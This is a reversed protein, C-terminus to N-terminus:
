KNRRRRLLIFAVGIAVILTILEFGPTGSEVTISLTGTKYIESDEYTATVTYTGKKNPATLTAKGNDDTTVTKGEFTVNAGALAAGKALVTVTFKEGTKPNSAPGSIKIKYVNIVTVTASTSPYGDKEVTITYQQSEIGPDGAKFSVVGDETQKTTGDFTVDADDVAVDDDTVTVTFSEDEYVTTPSVAVDLTQRTVTLYDSTRVWDGSTYAGGTTWELDQVITVNAKGSSLPEVDFEAQGNEDTQVPDPTEICNVLAWLTINIGVVADGEFDKATVLVTASDLESSIVAPMLTFDPFDITFIGSTRNGGANNAFTDVFTCNISGKLDGVEDIEFEGKGDEDVEVPNDSSDIVTDTADDLNLYVDTGDEVPNGLADLVTIEVTLNKTSIGAVAASPSFTVTAYEVPISVNGDHENLGTNNVAEILLTGKWYPFNDGTTDLVWKDQASKQEFTLTQLPDDKTHDDDILYGTVTPSGGSSGELINGDPDKIQLELTQDDIGVTLTQNAAGEPDIITVGIDHVPELEVVDYMWYGGSEAACVLYGVDHIADDSPNFEYIGDSGDLDDTSSDNVLAQSASILSNGKSWENDYLSVYVNATEIPYGGGSKVEVTIKESETVSIYLNDGISTTVSGTLGDISYDATDTDSGNTATLTLTGGIKPELKVQYWGNGKSMLYDNGAPTDDQEITFDLGCGSVELTANVRESSDSGYFDIYFSQSENLYCNGDANVNVASPMTGRVIMNLNGPSNVDFTTQGMWNPLLNENDYTDSYYSDQGELHTGNGPYQVIVTATGTENFHYNFEYYARKDTTRTMTVSGGGFESITVIDEDDFATTTSENWAKLGTIHFNAATLSDYVASNHTENDVSINITQDFGSIVEDSNRFDVDISDYTAVEFELYPIFNAPLGAAKDPETESIRYSAGNTEMTGIYWTGANYDDTDLDNYIYYGTYTDKNSNTVLTYGGNTPYYMAMEYGSVYDNDSTILNGNGDYVGVTFDVSDDTGWVLDGPGDGYWSVNLMCPLSVNSYVTTSGHQTVNVWYFTEYNDGDYYGTGSAGNSVPYSHSGGKGTDGWDSIETGDPLYLAYDFTPDGADDFDDDWDGDNYTAGTYNRISVGLQNSIGYSKNFSLYEITDSGEYFTVDFINGITLTVNDSVQTSPGMSSETTTNFLRINWQGIPNTGLLDWWPVHFDITIDGHYDASAEEMIIWASGNWVGLAYDENYTLSNDVVKFTIVEGCTLELGTTAGNNTVEGTASANEVLKFDAVENLVIMTSMVMAIAVITALINSGKM